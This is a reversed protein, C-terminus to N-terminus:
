CLGISYYNQMSNCKVDSNALIEVTNEHVSFLVYYKDYVHKYYTVKIKSNWNESQPIWTFWEFIDFLFFPSEDHARHHFIALVIKYLFPLKLNWM